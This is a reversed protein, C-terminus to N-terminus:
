QNEAHFDIVVSINAVMPVKVSYDSVLNLKGKVKSIKIDGAKIATVHDIQARKSFSQRIGNANATQMSADTVIADFIKQITHQEIYAPILKMGFTIVVVLVVGWVLLGSLSVGHQQRKLGQRM